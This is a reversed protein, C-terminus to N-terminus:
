RSQDLLRTVILGADQIETLDKSGPEAESALESLQDHAEQARTGVDGWMWDLIRQARQGALTLEISM